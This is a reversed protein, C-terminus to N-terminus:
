THKDFTLGFLPPEYRYAVIEEGFLTIENEKTTERGCIVIKNRKPNNM